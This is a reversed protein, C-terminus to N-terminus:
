SREINITHDISFRSPPPPAESSQVPMTTTTGSSSAGSEDPRRILAYEPSVVNAVREEWRRNDGANGRLFLIDAASSKEMVRGDEALSIRCIPCTTHKSLWEDICQLHFSHKCVPLQQLKENLQYEGLCVACRCPLSIFLM